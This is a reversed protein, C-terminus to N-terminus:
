LGSRLAEELACPESGLRRSKLGLCRGLWWGMPQRPVDARIQGSQVNSGDQSLLVDKTFIRRNSQDMRIERNPHVAM